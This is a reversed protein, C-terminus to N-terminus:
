CPIGVHHPHVSGGHERGGTLHDCQEARERQSLSARAVLHEIHGLGRCTGRDVECVAGAAVEFRDPEPAVPHKGPVGVGAVRDHHVEPMGRTTVGTRTRRERDAVPEGEDRRRVGVGAVGVQHGPVEAGAALGVEQGGVRRGGGGVPGMGHRPGGARLQPSRVDVVDHGRGSRADETHESGWGERGTRCPRKVEVRGLPELFCPEPEDDGVGPAVDYTTDGHGLGRVAGHTVEGPVSQDVASRSGGPGVAPFEVQLAAIGAGEEDVGVTAGRHRPAHGNGACGGSDGAHDRGERRDHSRRHGGDRSGAGPLGAGHREAILPEEIGHSEVPLGVGGVGRHRVVVAPVQGYRHSARRRAVGRRGQAGCLCRHGPWGHGAHYRHQRARLWHNTHRHRSQGTHPRRRTHGETILPETVPRRDGGRRPVPVRRNSSVDTAPQRDIHGTTSRFACRHGARRRRARQHHPRRHGAPRRGKRRRLRDDARRHRGAGAHPGGPTHNEAILPVAVPSREATRRLHGVGRDGSVEAVRQADRDGARGALM